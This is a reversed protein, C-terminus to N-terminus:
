ETVEKPKPWGGRARGACDTCTPMDGKHACVAARAETVRNPCGDTRCRTGRHGERRPSPECHGQTARLAPGVPQPPMWQAPWVSATVAPSFPGEAQSPRPTDGPRPHCWCCYWIGFACPTWFDLNGCIPCYEPSRWEGVPLAPQEKSM